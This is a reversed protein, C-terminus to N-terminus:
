VSYLYSHGWHVCLSVKAKRPGKESSNIGFNENVVRLEASWLVWVTKVLWGWILFFFTLLIVAQHIFLIHTWRNLFMDSLYEFNHPWIYEFWPGEFTFVTEEYILISLSLLFHLLWSWNSSAKLRATIVSPKCILSRLSTSQGCSSPYVVQQELDWFTWRYFPILLTNSCSGFSLIPTLTSKCIIHSIFHSKWKNSPLTLAEQTSGILFGGAICSVQTWDRPQSSERSSPMAVWELVRAQLVGHVSASLLVCAALVNGLFLVYAREKFEGEQLPITRRRSSCDMRRYELSWEEQGRGAGASM